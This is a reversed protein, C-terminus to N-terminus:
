FCIITITSKDVCQLAHRSLLTLCAIYSETNINNNNNNNLNLNIIGKQVCVIGYCLEYVLVCYIVLGQASDFMSSDNWTTTEEVRAFGIPMNRCLKTDDIQCLKCDNSMVARLRRRGWRKTISVGDLQQRLGCRLRGPLRRERLLLFQEDSVSLQESLDLQLKSLVYFQVLVGDPVRNDSCPTTASVTVGDGVANV